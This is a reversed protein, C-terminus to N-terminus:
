AMRDFSGDVTGGDPFARGLLPDDLGHADIRAALRSLEEELAAFTPDSRLASPSASELLAARKSLKSVYREAPESLTDREILSRVLGVYEERTVPKTLYADLDLDVIHVDPTAATVFAIRPSSPGERLTELVEDGSVRPMHRDLIAVDVDGDECYSLAEAGCTATVLDIDEGELWTAFLDLLSPQDDVIL